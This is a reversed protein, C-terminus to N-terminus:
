KINVQENYQRRVKDTIWVTHKLRDFSVRWEAEFQPHEKKRLLYSKPKGIKNYTNNM